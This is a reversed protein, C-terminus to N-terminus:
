AETAEFIQAERVKAWEILLNAFASGFGAPLGMELAQQETLAAVERERAADTIQIGRQHKWRAVAEVTEFRQAALELLERNLEDLRQRLEPLDAV